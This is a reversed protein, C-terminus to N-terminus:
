WYKNDKTKQTIAMRVFTLNTKIQMERIILSASCKNMCRNAMQMDEKSFFTLEPGKDKKLQIKALKNKLLSDPQILVKYIKSILEKDSLNAFITEWEMPQRKMKNIIVKAM